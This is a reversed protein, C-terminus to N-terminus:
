FVMPGQRIENSSGMERIEDILKQLAKPEANSRDLRGSRLHLSIIKYANQNHWRNELYQWSVRDGVIPVKIGDRNFFYGLSTPGDCEEWVEGNKYTQNGTRYSFVTIANVM